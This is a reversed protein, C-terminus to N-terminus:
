ILTLEQPPTSLLEAGQATVLVDQELGIPAGDRGTVGHVVPEVTYVENERLPVNGREGYRANLPALLTGGDHVTRGIQHGLAHTYPTVGNAELHERAVADVEYGRRGPAIAKIAKLMADRGTVFRHQVSEPPRSEGERRAYYTRQLDSTYGEVFVGMDVVVVDGATVQAASAPRHGVGQHGVMVNAGDGFSHTVGYHRHRAKVFEAAELESVGPKLFEGLEDLVRETVRVAERLRRVEEPTKQSRLADLIGQASRVRREFDEWGLVRRLKRYMGVTLGDALPDSESFDLALTKPGVRALLGKLPAEFGGQGYPTIEFAGGAEIPAVDYDAVVAYKQGDRTFLFAAEGVMETNTFLLTAPDSGERCLVLWADAELTPLLADLQAQKERILTLDSPKM